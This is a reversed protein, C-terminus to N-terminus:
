RAMALQCPCQRNRCTGDDFLKTGCRCRPRHGQGNRHETSRPPGGTVYGPRQAVPKIAPPIALTPIRKVAALVSRLRIAMLGLGVGCITLCVNTAAPESGLAVATFMRLALIACLGFCLRVIVALAYADVRHLHKTVTLKGNVMRLTTVFM